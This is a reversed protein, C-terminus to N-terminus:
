IFKLDHFNMIDQSEMRDWNIHKALIPTLNCSDNSEILLLWHPYHRSTSKRLSIRSNIGRNKLEQVLKNICVLMIADLAYERSIDGSYDFGPNYFVNDILAPTLDSVHIGARTKTSINIFLRKM